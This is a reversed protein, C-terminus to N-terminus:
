LGIWAGYVFTWGAQFQVGGVGTVTRNITTTFVQNGTAVGGTTVSTSTAPPPDGVATVNTGVALATADTLGGTAGLGPNNPYPSAQPVVVSNGTTATISLAGLAAADSSGVVTAAGATVGDLERDTLATPGAAFASVPGCVTLGAAVVSLISVRAQGKM